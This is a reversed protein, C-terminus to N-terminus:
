RGCINAGGYLRPTAFEVLPVCLKPLLRKQADLGVVDHPRFREAALFALKMVPARCHRIGSRRRRKKLDDSLFTTPAAAVLKRLDSVAPNYATREM